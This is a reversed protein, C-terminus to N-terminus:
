FGVLQVEDELMVGLEDRVKMKVLSTLQLVDQARAGGTNVIFNGHAESVKAAGVNTGKLGLKEVLWGASISKRKLMEDPISDGQRKLGDLDAESAYEFNKFMCGASLEGQPQTQKRKEQLEQAKALVREKDSPALSLLTKLIILPKHRFISDRYAFKCQVKPLAVRKASGPDYADVSVVLDKMEGGFCGANGCIAGGITGPVTTGWEFGTLGAEAAAKAVVVTSAGSSASVTRERVTFANDLYRIVLGRYGDDSVLVNSGGGLVYWPLNQAKATEIAGILDDATSAEFYLQAPGGIKLYTHPALPEDRKAESFITLFTKIQQETLPHM